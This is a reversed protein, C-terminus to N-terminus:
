LVMSMLERNRNLAISILEVDKPKIVNTMGAFKIKYESIVVGTVLGFKDIYNDWFIDWLPDESQLYKIADDVLKIGKEVDYKNKDLAMANALRIVFDVKEPSRIRECIDSEGAPITACVSDPDQPFINGIPTTWPTGDVINACGSFFFCPIILLFLFKKM